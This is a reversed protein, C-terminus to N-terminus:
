CGPDYQSPYNAPPPFWYMSCQLGGPMLLYSVKWCSTGPRLNSGAAESALVRVVVGGLGGPQSLSTRLNILSAGEFVQERSGHGVCKTFCHISM